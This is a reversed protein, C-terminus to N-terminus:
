PYTEVGGSHMSSSLQTTATPCASGLARQTEAAEPHDAPATDRHASCLSPEAPTSETSPELIARAMELYEGRWRKSREYDGSDVFERLTDLQNKSLFGAVLYGM